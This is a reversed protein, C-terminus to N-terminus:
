LNKVKTKVRKEVGEKSAKKVKVEKEKVEEKLEIAQADIKDKLSSMRANGLTKSM